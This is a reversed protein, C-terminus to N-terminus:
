IREGDSLRRCSKKESQASVWYHILSDIIATDIKKVEVSNLFGLHPLLKEYTQQTSREVKLFHFPRWKEILNEFTYCDKGQRIDNKHVKSGRSSKEFKGGRFDKADESCDLFAAV